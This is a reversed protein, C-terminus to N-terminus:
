RRRCIVGSFMAQMPQLTPTGSPRSKSLGRGDPVEADSGGAIPHPGNYTEDIGVCALRRGLRRAPLPVRDAVADRRPRRRRRPGSLQHPGAEVGGASGRVSIRVRRYARDFGVHEGPPVMKEM